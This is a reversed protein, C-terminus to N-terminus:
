FSILQIADRKFNTRDKPKDHIHYIMAGFRYCKSADLDMYLQHKSHFYVLFMPKSFLDQLTKFAVEEKKIPGDIIAKKTYGKRPKGKQLSAKLMM